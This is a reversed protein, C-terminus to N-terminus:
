MYLRVPIRGKEADTHGQETSRSQGQQGGGKERRSTSLCLAGRDKGELGRKFKTVWIKRYETMAMM